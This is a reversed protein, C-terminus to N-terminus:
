NIHERKQGQEFYIIDSDSNSQLNDLNTKITETNLGTVAKEWDSSDVEYDYGMENATELYFRLIMKLRVIAKAQSFGFSHIKLQPCSAQFHGGIEKINISIDM